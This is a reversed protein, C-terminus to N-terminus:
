NMRSLKQQIQLRSRFLNWGNDHACSQEARFTHARHLSSLAFMYNSSFTSSLIINQKSMQHRARRVVRQCNHWVSTHSETLQGSSLCNLYLYSDYLSFNYKSFLQCMDNNEWKRIIELKKVLVYTGANAQAAGPYLVPYAIWHACEFPFLFIICITSLVIENADRPNYNRNVPFPSQPLHSLSLIVRSSKSINRIHRTARDYTSTLNFRQERVRVM